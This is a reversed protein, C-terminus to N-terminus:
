GGRMERGVQGNGGGNENAGAGPHQGQRGENDGGANSGGNVNAHQEKIRLAARLLGRWGGGGTEEFSEPPHPPPLVHIEGTTNEEENNGG